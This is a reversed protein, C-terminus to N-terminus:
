HLTQRKYVDEYGDNNFDGIKFINKDNSIKFPTVSHIKWLFDKKEYSYVISNTGLMLVLFIIISKLLNKM